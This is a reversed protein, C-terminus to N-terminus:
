ERTTFRINHEINTEKRFGRGKTKDLSGHCLQSTAGMITSKFKPAHTPIDDANGDDMTTDNDMLDDEEWEFDVADVDIDAM